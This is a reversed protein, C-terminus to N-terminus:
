RARRSARLANLWRRAEEMLHFRLEAFDAHFFLDNLGGGKALEKVDVEGMDFTMRRFRRDRYVSLAVIFRPGLGPGGACARTLCSGRRSPTKFHMLRTSFKKWMANM